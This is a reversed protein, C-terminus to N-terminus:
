NGGNERFLYWIADFKSRLINIVEKYEEASLDNAMIDGELNGYEDYGYHIIFERYGSRRSEADNVWVHVYYCDCDEEYAQEICYKGVEFEKM